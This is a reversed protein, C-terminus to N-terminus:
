RLQLRPALQMRSGPNSGSLRAPLANESLGLRLAKVSFTRRAWEGAVHAPQESGLNHGSTLESGCTTWCEACTTQTLIWTMLFYPRVIFEDPREIPRCAM